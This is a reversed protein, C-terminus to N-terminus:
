RYHFLRIQEVHGQAELRFASEEFTPMSVRGRQKSFGFPEAPFGSDKLDVQANDNSDQYVMVAYHGAPLDHLTVKQSATQPSFSWEHLGQGMAEFNAKGHYLMLWVRGQEPILRKLEITLDAAQLTSSLCLGNLLISLSKLRALTKM